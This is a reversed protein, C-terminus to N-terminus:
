KIKYLRAVNGRLIKDRDAQPVGSFAKEIAQSSHPWPSTEMPFESEWLINDVGLYSRLRLGAREFWTTVFCNRRFILSPALDLQYPLAGRRCVRDWEYDSVELMFSIWDIGSAPFIVKLGPFREPVGSFLFNCMVANISQPKRINEITRLTEPRAKEYVEGLGFQYSGSHWCIPVDLEVAKAWLPDWAPTYLHPLAKNIHWPLPAMVAGRHGLGVSREMEKAAAEPSAIPLICQPVFRGSAAGWTELLWDNYARVCAVQFDPDPIAALVEGSVGSVYPYLVQLEVGDQDMARLRAAPDYTERPVEAWARPEARRGNM